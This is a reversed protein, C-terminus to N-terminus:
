RAKLATATGARGMDPIEYKATDGPNEIPADFITCIDGFDPVIMCLEKRDESFRYDFVLGDSTQGEGDALELVMTTGDVNDLQLRMSEANSVGTLIIAATILSISKM